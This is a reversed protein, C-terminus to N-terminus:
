QVRKAKPINEIVSEPLNKIKGNTLDTGSINQYGLAYLFMEAGLVTPEMIIGNKPLPILCKSKDSDSGIAYYGSILGRSQLGTISHHLISNKNEKKSFDMANEYDNLSILIHIKLEAGLNIPNDKFLNFVSYYFLYHLRLQYVSMSKILNLISIARDDRDISTKASALVGGYYETLIENECFKGDDIINKLVRPSVQGNDNIRDGLKQKANSFINNLNINCKEVLGKIEGGIYDASPGLIKKLLDKSYIIAAATSIISADIDM